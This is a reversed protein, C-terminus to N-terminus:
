SRRGSRSVILLDATEGQGDIVLGTALRLASFERDAVDDHVARAANQKRGIDAGDDPLTSLLIM